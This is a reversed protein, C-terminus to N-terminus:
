KYQKADMKIWIIQNNMQIWRKGNAKSGIKEREKILHLVIKVLYFNVLQLVLLLLSFVM